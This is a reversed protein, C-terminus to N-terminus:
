LFTTGTDRAQHAVPFRTAPPPGTLYSRSGARYLSPVGRQEGPWRPGDTCDNGFAQACRYLGDNELPWPSGDVSLTRRIPSRWRLRSMKTSLGTEDIFVLKAPELDLQDDFWAQRRKLLDDLELAPAAEEWLDLGLQTRIPITPKM